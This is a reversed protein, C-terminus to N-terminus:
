YKQVVVNKNQDIDIDAIREDKWFVTFKDIFDMKEGEKEPNRINLISVYWLFIQM